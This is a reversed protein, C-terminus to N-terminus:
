RSITVTSKADNAGVPGVITSHNFALHGGDLVLWSRGKAEAKTAMAEITTGNFIMTGGTVYIGAPPMGHDDTRILMTGGNFTVTQGSAAAENMLTIHKSGNANNVTIPGSLSEVVRFGQTWVPDNITIYGSGVGLLDSEFDWAEETASVVTVHSLTSQTIYAMTVGQRGANIITLGNVQIDSNPPYRPQFGFTIGDGYTNSIAVNSITVHSSSLMDIGAQGVLHRHFSTDSHAGVLAANEITVDHTDLIHIVPQVRLHQGGAQTAVDSLDEYTGGDITIPRNITIGEPVLYCGSGHFTAGAPLSALYTALYGHINGACNSRSTPAAAASSADSSNATVKSVPATTTTTSTTASAHPM